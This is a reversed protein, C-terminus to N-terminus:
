SLKKGFCLGQEVAIEAVKCAKDGYSHALHKAIKEDFGYKEMLEKYLAEHWNHAGELLLKDTQCKRHRPRLDPIM